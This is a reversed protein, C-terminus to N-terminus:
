SSQGQRVVNLLSTAPNPTEKGGIRRKLLFEGFRGLELENESYLNSM